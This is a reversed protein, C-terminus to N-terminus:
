GSGPESGGARPSSLWGSAKLLGALGLSLGDTIVSVARFTLTAGLAGRAGITPDLLAVMVAERIGLGAPAGPALFGALWSLATVAGFFLVDRGSVGFIDAALIMTAAGLLFLGAANLCVVGACVLLKPYLSAAVVGNKWKWWATAILAAVGTVTTLGVLASKGGFRELGPFPENNLWLVVITFLVTGEIALTIEVVMSLLVRRVDYGYIKALAIRGLHQAVNGPLYKGFQSTLFILLSDGFRPLIGAVRLLLFWNIAGIALDAAYLLMALGFGRSARASWEVDRLLIANRYLYPLFFALSLILAALGIWRRWALKTTVPQTNLPWGGVRKPSLRDQHRCPAPPRVNWCM